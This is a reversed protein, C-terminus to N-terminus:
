RTDGHLLAGDPELTQEHLYTATTTDQGAGAWPHDLGNFQRSASLRVGAASAETLAEGFRTVGLAERLIAITAPGTVESGFKKKGRPDDAVVLVMIERDPVGADALAEPARRGYAVMSATYCSQRRTLHDREGAFSGRCSRSCSSGDAHLSANHALEVHLCAESPVKQTTGTKTGVSVLDPVLEPRAVHRGTGEAAGEEMMKRVNACTAGSFVRRTEGGPLDFRRGDQEVAEILRLPRHHGGRLVTSLAAAHQWLSATFEHGFSISAQTYARSWPLAPLLGASEPGIGAGPRRGYGLSELRGHLAADELSLGIQVLVANVSRALGASASISAERPAGEAERIVRTSNPVRYGKGAFTAFRTEPLVVGEDLAAAMVLVKATSGPTFTHQLPAFGGLPYPSSAEMALVNGSEVEIVIAMALAPDHEISLQELVSRVHVQLHSDITSMVLPAEAALVSGLFYNDTRQGRQRRDRPIARPFSARTAPRRALGSWREDELERACLLELGSRPASRTMYDRRLEDLPAALATVNAAVDAVAAHGLGLDRRARREAEQPGLVGWSGLLDLGTGTGEGGAGLRLPYHRTQGRELSMQYVSVGESELLRQIHYAVTPALDRAVVRHRSPMLESWIARRLDIDEATKPRLTLEPQGLICAALDRVLRGTWQTPSRRNVSLHRGRMERSLLVRPEWDLTYDGGQGLAVLWIGDLPRGASAAEPNCSGTAIWNAVRQAQVENFRLTQPGNKSEAGVPIVGARAQTPLMRELIQEARLGEGLVATLAEAMYDPTHGQWMSHPSVVLDASEVSVALPRGRRDAIEFEPWPRQERHVFDPQEGERVLAIRLTQVAILVVVASLLIFAGTPRLPSASRLELRPRKM